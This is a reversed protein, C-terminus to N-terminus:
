QWKPTRRCKWDSLFSSCISSDRFDKMNENQLHKPIFNDQCKRVIKIKKNASHKASTWLHRFNDQHKKLIKTTKRRPGKQRGRIRRVSFKLIKRLHLDKSRPLDLSSGLVSSHSSPQASDASAAMPRSKLMKCLLHGLLEQHKFKSKPSHCLHPPRETALRRDM